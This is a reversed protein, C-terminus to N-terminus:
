KKKDQVQSLQPIIMFSINLVAKIKNSDQRSINEHLCFSPPSTIGAVVKEV